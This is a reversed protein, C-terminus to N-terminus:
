SGQVGFDADEGKTVRFGEPDLLAHLRFLSKVLNLTREDQAGITLLYISTLNPPVILQQGEKLFKYTTEPGLYLVLDSISDFIITIAARRATSITKDMLDLIVATDGQPVLLENSRETPGPYSVGDTMLYFRVGPMGTMAYHLPSGKSTFVYVLNGAAVKGRAVKALFKEFSIAPDVMLLIPAFVDLAQVVEAGQPASRDVVMPDYFTSLVSGRSFILATVGILISIGIHGVGVLDDGPTILYGPFYFLNGGM